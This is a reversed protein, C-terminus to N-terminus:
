TNANRATVIMDDLRNAFPLAEAAHRAAGARDGDLAETRMERVHMRLDRAAAIANNRADSGRVASRVRAAIRNALMNAENAAQRVAADSVNARTNFSILIAQLRHLDARVRSSMAPASATRKSSKKTVNHVKVATRPVETSETKAVDDNPAPSTATSTKTEAQKHDQAAIAPVFAIVIAFALPLVTRRM